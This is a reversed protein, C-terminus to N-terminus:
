TQSFGLRTAMTASASPGSRTVVRALIALVAAGVALLLSLRLDRGITYVVVFLLGPVLTEAAGRVGGVAQALREDHEIPARHREVRCQDARRGGGADGREAQGVGGRHRAVNRSSARGQTRQARDM